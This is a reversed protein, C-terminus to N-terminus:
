VSGSDERGFVKYGARQFRRLYGVQTAVGDSSDLLTVRVTRNPDAVWASMESAAIRVLGCELYLWVSHDADEESWHVADCPLGNKASLTAVHGDKIRSLGGETSAWLAGERDTRLHSVRGTALGMPLQTRASSTAM